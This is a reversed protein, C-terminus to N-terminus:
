APYKEEIFDLIEKPNTIKEDLIWKNKVKASQKLKLAL